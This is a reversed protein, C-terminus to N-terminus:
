KYTIFSSYNTVPYHFEIVKTIKGTLDNCVHFVSSQTEWMSCYETSTKVGKVQEAKFKKYFSDGTIEISEPHFNFSIEYSTYANGLSDAFSADCQKCVQSNSIFSVQGVLLSPLLLLIFIIKKM